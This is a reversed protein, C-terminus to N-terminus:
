RAGTEELLGERAAFVAAETRGPLNLRRFVSRIPSKATSVSMFLDGAIQQNTMGRALRVLVAREKETLQSAPRDMERSRRALAPYESLLRGVVHRPLWVDGMAVARIAEPLASSAQSKCLFGKAGHRAADLQTEETEDGTLVIVAPASEHTALRELVQLGSMEPLGLDLLMAQPRLKLVADLAEHGSCASGIVAFGEQGALREILFNRLLADDEAIVISVRPEPHSM